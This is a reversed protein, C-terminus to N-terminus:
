FTLLEKETLVAHLKIDWADQPMDRAEQMAFGLGLMFPTNHQQDQMFSFTKDYYGGGAGLRNGKNDFSVLPMIVLDLKDPRILYHTNVPELISLQNPQLEDNENFRVFQLTKNETLVPLYCIKDAEWISQILQDTPFESKYSQYCAIHRSEKFM